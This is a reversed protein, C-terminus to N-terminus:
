KAAINLIAGIFIGFFGIFPIVMVRVDVGYGAFSAAIIGGLVFWWLYYIIIFVLSLIGFVKTEGPDKVICLISFILIVIFLPIGVFDPLFGSGSLAGATAYAFGFMWIYMTVGMLTIMVAPLFLSILMLIGGVKNLAAM